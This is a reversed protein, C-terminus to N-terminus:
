HNLGKYLSRLDYAKMLKDILIERTYSETKENPFFMSYLSTLTIMDFSQIHSEFSKKNGSELYLLALKENASTSSEVKILKELLSIAEPIKDLLVYISTLKLSINSDDDRQELVKEFCIKANELLNAKLYLEGGIMNVEYSSDDRKLAESMLKLAEDTNELCFYAYAKKALSTPTTTSLTEFQQVIDIVKNYESTDMYCDALSMYLFEEVPSLEICTLLVEIAENVRGSLIMCHAKLKLLTLDEGEITAVFDFADIAKEFDENISYLRGLTMWAETSYPDLDLWLNSCKIANPFDNKAEYAYVLDSLVDKNEPDYELSKELYLIAEDYYEAEVYLFGLESLVINMETESDKLVEVTLDYAEAYLNLNLFCEIKLLYVEFDYSRFHLTLYDLADVYLSDYILFKAYRLMLYENNPHIKLGINVIDKATDIDELGEYYEALQDYEDADFYANVGSQLMHKYKIVLHTIDKESM